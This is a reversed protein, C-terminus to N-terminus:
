TMYINQSRIGAERVLYNEYGKMLRVEETMLKGVADRDEM